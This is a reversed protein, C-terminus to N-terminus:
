VAPNPTYPLITARGQERLVSEALVWLGGYVLSHGGLVVPVPAAVAARTFARVKEDRIREPQRLDSYFRDADSLGVRWHAFLVRTDFLVAEAVRALDEFFAEFGIRDIVLGALSVVEGRELRGLAKMGREESWVRVRCAFNSNLLTIITAGVRGILMLESGPRRLLEQAALIPRLDVNIGAVAASTRPGRGYALALIGLDTPTDLDFNIWASNPILFRQLGVQRLASGLANDSAPLDIDDLVKAPRFGVIDPSQVNNVVVAAPEAMLQRAIWAMEEPRMLPAAAGGMTIVAELRYRDVIDRLAQGFHFTGPSTRSTEVTCGLARAETALAHINTVLIVEAIEPVSQAKEITDLVVAQRVRAMDQEVARRARGGEFIVLSVRVPM